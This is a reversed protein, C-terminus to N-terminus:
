ANWVQTTDLMYYMFALIIREKEAQRNLWACIQLNLNTVEFSKSQSTCDALQLAGVHWKYQIYKRCKDDHLRMIRSGAKRQMAGQPLGLAGQTRQTEEALKRMRPILVQYM